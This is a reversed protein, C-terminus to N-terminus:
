YLYKFFLKFVHWCFLSKLLNFLHVKYNNAYMIAPFLSLYQSKFIYLKVSSTLKSRFMWKISLMWSINLNIMQTRGFPTTMIAYKSYEIFVTFTVMWDFCGFNLFPLRIHTSLHDHLTTSTFDIFFSKSNRCM